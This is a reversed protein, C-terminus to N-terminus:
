SDGAAPSDCALAANGRMRVDELATLALALNRGEPCTDRLNIALTLCLSSVLAHTDIRAQNPPPQYLFRNELEEDTPKTM